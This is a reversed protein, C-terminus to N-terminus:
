HALSEPLRRKATSYVLGQNRIKVHTNQSCVHTHRSARDVRSLSSAADRSGGFLNTSGGDEGPVRSLSKRSVIRYQVCHQKTVVACKTFCEDQGTDTWVGVSARSVPVHGLVRRLILKVHIRQELCRCAHRHLVQPVVHRVHLAYPPLPSEVALNVHNELLIWRIIM